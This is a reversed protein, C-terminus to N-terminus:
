LGVAIMCLEERVRLCSILLLQYHLRNYEICRTVYWTVFDTVNGETMRITGNEDLDEM